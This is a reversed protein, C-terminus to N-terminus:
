GEEDDVLKQVAILNSTALKLRALADRVTDSIATKEARPAVTLERLLQALSQDAVGVEEVAAALRTALENNM